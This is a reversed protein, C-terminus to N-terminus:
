NGNGARPKKDSLPARVQDLGAAKLISASSAVSLNPVASGPLEITRGDTTELKITARTGETIKEVKALIPHRLFTRREVVINTLAVAFESNEPAPRISQRLLAEIDVKATSPDGGSQRM